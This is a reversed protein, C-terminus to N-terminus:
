NMLYIFLFVLHFNHLGIKLFIILHACSINYSVNGNDDDYIDVKGVETRVAANKRKTPPSKKLTLTLVTHFSLVRADTNGFNFKDYMNCSFSYFYSITDKAGGQPLM